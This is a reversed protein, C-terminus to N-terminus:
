AAEPVSIMSVRPRLMLFGALGDDIGEASLTKWIAAFV